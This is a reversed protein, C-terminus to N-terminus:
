RAESSVLRRRNVDTNRYPKRREKIERHMALFQIIEGLWATDDDVPCPEGSIDCRMCGTCSELHLNTLRVMQIAAGEAQAGRLAQCVLLDSNRWPRASGVLGPISAM